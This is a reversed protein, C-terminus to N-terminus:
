EGAVEVRVEAQINPHLRAAVSYMGLQKIPEKLLLKKKDLVINYQSALAEAIDKNNVSGFLRGGEGTKARVVVTVGKLRAALARAEEEAKKEKMALVKQRDGLAKMRGKTAEEALGRPFLYNRAYGEAVDVVEGKKGQGPVDKLLIVKM